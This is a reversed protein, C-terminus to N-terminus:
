HAVTELFVSLSNSHLYGELLLRIPHHLPSDRDLGPGKASTTATGPTIEAAM